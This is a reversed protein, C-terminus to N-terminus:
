LPKLLLFQLVTSGTGRYLDPIWSKGVDATFMTNWPTKFTVAVGTGTIPRWLDRATRTAAGRTISSCTSGISASSTSRIPDACCRWSPSDSARRRARRADAGRRVTRVSVHQVSRARRRRVLGRRRPGVPVSRLSLGEGRQDLPTSVDEGDAAFIAPPDGRPGPNVRSRRSPAASGIATGATSTAWAPATRSRAPRFSSTTRPRPRTSTRTTACRTAPRSSRFRRSSIASTSAPRCRFPSSASTWASAPPTLVCIPAPCRSASSTSARTSRRRARAKPTQLNGLSFCAASSCRWSTAAARSTSTSITSGSSRCRFRSRRISRRAWRWRRARRRRDRQERRARGGRKVLYRVGADTDRFMVHAAPARRRANRRSSRRTSGSTPSGSSRRSCCTAGPSSCSRSPPCDDRCSSSGAEGPRCRSTPRPKRTRSSRVKSIPRSPRCKSGFFRRGRRDVGLRSLAVPDLDSPDFAVVYCRREGVTETRELRYRYDADLRLDLPLSLVKEAQLLPLGPRDPGWKTATSPSRCSRGSSPTRGPSSGTRPSSTSCRRRPRGSTCSSEPALRHVDQLCQRQGDAGASAARRDRRRELSRAASVDARSVFANTAGHTSTSCSRPRGLRAVDHALAEHNRGLLLGARQGVDRRAPDRVVPRRGSQDVLSFTVPGRPM